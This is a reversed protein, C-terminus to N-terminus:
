KFLSEYSVLSELTGAPKEIKLTRNYKKPNIDKLKELSKLLLDRNDKEVSNKLAKRLLALARTKAEEQQLFFLSFENMIYGLKYLYIDDGSGKFKKALYDVYLELAERAEDEPKTFVMKSLVNHIPEEVDNDFRNM